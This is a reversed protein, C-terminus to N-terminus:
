PQRHCERYKKGSGCPCPQNRHVQPIPGDSAITLGRM